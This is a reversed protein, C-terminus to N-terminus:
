SPYQATWTAPGTGPDAGGSAVAGSTANCSTYTTGTPTGSYSVGLTSSGNTPVATASTSSEENDELFWCRGDTSEDALIMVEGDSSVNVSIAHAGSADGSTFTFAPDSSQLATALTANSTGYSQSTAYYAKASVLANSLDSQASRDQASSKVGLFTPIAIALLIAMILLVVMLEILTFGSETGEEDALEARKGLAERAMRLLQASKATKM